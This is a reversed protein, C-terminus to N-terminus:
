VRTLAALVGRDVVLVDTVQHVSQRVQFPADRDYGPELAGRAPTHRVGDLLQMAATPRASDTPGSRSHEALVACQRM